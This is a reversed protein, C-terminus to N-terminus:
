CPWSSGIVDEWVDTSLYNCAHGIYNRPLVRVVILLSGSQSDLVCTLM